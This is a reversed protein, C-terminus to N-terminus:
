VIELVPGGAPPPSPSGRYGLVRSGLSPCGVNRGEMRGPIGVRPTRNPSSQPGYSESVNGDGNGNGIRSQDRVDSM